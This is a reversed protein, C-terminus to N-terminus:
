KVETESKPVAALTAKLREASTHWYTDTQGREEEAEAALELMAELEIQWAEIQEKSPM